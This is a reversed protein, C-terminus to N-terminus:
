MRNIWQRFEPVFSLTAALATIAVTGIIALTMLARHRLQAEASGVGFEIIEPLYFWPVAVLLGIPYMYVADAATGKPLFRELFVMAVGSLAAGLIAPGGKVFDNQAQKFGLVAVSGVFLGLALLGVYAM